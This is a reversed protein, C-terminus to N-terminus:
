YASTTKAKEEASVLSDTSSRTAIVTMPQFIPGPWRKDFPVDHRGPQCRQAVGVELLLDLRM